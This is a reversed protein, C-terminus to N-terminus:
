FGFAKPSIGASVTGWRRGDIYLVTYVTFVINGDPLLFTAMSFDQLKRMKEVDEQTLPFYMHRSKAQDIKFDGTPPHSVASRNVSVYGEEDLPITYIIDDTNDWSDILSQSLEQLPKLWSVDYKPWKGNPIEVYNHDWIDFGKDKVQKLIQQMQEKRQDITAIIKELKGRGTKMKVLSGLALNTTGRMHEAHEYAGEMDKHIKLGLDRIQMSRQNSENNTASMEEIATSMLLLDAHTAEFDKVMEDFKEASAGVASQAKQSSAVMSESDKATQSVASGMESVLEDIQDAAGRVKGALARVEDAVVAFGRGQEGARAAEIAANLALMNTQAAFAQVTDLIDRIKESSIELRSVNGVFEEMKDTVTNIDHIVQNMDSLSHRALELNRSNVEAIQTGRQALEEIATATQNSAQFNLESVEEQQEAEARVAIALKRAQAAALGVTLNHHQHEDAMVRIREMFKNFEVAAESTLGATTVTVDSSLDCVEQNAKRITELLSIIAVGSGVIRRIYLALAFSTLGLVVALVKVWGQAVWAFGITLGLQTLLIGILAGGKVLAGTWHSQQQSM